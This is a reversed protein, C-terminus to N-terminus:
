LHCRRFTLEKFGFTHGFSSVKLRDRPSDGLIIIFAARGHGHGNKLFALTSKLICPRNSFTIELESGHM